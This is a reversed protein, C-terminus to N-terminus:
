DHESERTINIEEWEEEYYKPEEYKVLEEEEKKIKQNTNRYPLTKKEEEAAIIEPEYEWNNKNTLSINMCQVRELHDAGIMPSHTCVIIQKNQMKGQLEELLIEQWSSHLSIEPEDVLVLEQSSIHSAYLLSFIQREGSSLSRINEDEEVAKNVEDVKIAENAEHAETVEDTKDVEDSDDIEFRINLFPEFFATSKSLIYVKKKSLFGNLSKVYDIFEFFYNDLAKLEDEILVLYLSMLEFLKRGVENDSIDKSLNISDIKEKITAALNLHCKIPYEEIEELRLVIEKKLDLISDSKPEIESQSDNIVIESIESALRATLKQDEKVIELSAKAMKENLRIVIEPLSCYTIDPTFEGFIDQVFKNSKQKKSHSIECSEESNHESLSSFWAELVSRFTPFYASKPLPNELSRALNSDRTIEAIKVRKDSRSVLLKDRSDNRWKLSVFTGEDMYVKVQNFNLHLFKKFSSNTVNTLIHLLTTKFDGNESYIINLDPEFDQAIDFQDHLGIIEIKQIFRNM